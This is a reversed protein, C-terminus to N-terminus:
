VPFPPNSLWPIVTNDASLAPSSYIIQSTTSEPQFQLHRVFYPPHFTAILLVRDRNQRSSLPSIPSLLDAPFPPFAQPFDIMQLLTLFVVQIFLIKEIAGLATHRHIYFLLMIYIFVSSSLYHLLFPNLNKFYHIWM